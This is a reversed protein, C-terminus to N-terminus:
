KRHNLLDRLGIIIASWNPRTSKKLGDWLVKLPIPSKKPFSTYIGLIKTSIEAIGALNGSLINLGKREEWLIGAM